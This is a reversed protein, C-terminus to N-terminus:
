TYLNLIDDFQVCSKKISVVCLFLAHLVATKLFPFVFGTNASCLTENEKDCMVTVLSWNKGKIGPAGSRGPIGLPGPPGPPGMMGIEGKAGKSFDTLVNQPKPSQFAERERGRDRDM